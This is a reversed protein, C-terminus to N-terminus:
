EGGVGCVPCILAQEEVPNQCSACFWKKQRAIKFGAIFLILGVIPGIITFFFFVGILAGIAELLVGTGIKDSRKSYKEMSGGLRYERVDPFIFKKYCNLRGTSIMQFCTVM